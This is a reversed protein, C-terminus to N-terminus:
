FLSFVISLECRWVPDSAPAADGIPLFIGAGFNLQLDSAPSWLFRAFFENGLFYGENGFQQLTVLDNRIFYNSSFGVSMTQNIRALYDLSIASIGSFRPKLVYGLFNNTIPLFATFSNNEWWTGSSFRGM